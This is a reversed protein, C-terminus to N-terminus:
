RLTAWTLAGLAGLELVTTFLRLTEARETYTAMMTADNYLTVAAHVVLFLAFLLLGLTFPSRMQRHNRLYIAALVIALVGNLATLALTLTMVLTM